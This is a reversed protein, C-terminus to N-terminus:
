IVGLGNRPVFPLAVPQDQSPPPPPTGQNNSYVRDAAASYAQALAQARQQEAALYGARYQQLYGLLKQYADFQAQRYGLNQQDLQYGAEGSHLIGRRNLNAIIDRTAKQNAQDLRATTSLGAATNEQALKQVDPGFADQLDAQTM